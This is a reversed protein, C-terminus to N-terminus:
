NQELSIYIYRAAQIMTAPELMISILQNLLWHGRVIDMSFRGERLRKYFNIERLSFSYDDCFWFLFNNIKYGLGIDKSGM